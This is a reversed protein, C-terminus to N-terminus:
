TRTLNLSLFWKTLTLLLYYKPRDPNTAEFMAASQDTTENFSDSKTPVFVSSFVGVQCSDRRRRMGDVHYRVYTGEKKQYSFQSM